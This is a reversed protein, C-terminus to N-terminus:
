RRGPPRRGFLSQYRNMETRSSACRGRWCGDGRRASSRCRRPGAPAPSDRACIVRSGQQALVTLFYPKRHLSRARRVELRAAYSSTQCLRRAAGSRGSRGDMRPITSNQGAGLKVVTTNPADWVPRVRISATATVESIVDDYSSVIVCKWLVPLLCVPSFLSDQLKHTSLEYQIGRALGLERKRSVTRKLFLLPYARRLDAIFASAPTHVLHEVAAADLNNSGLQRLMSTAQHGTSMYIVRGEPRM